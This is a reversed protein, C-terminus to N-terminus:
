ADVTPEPPAAALVHAAGLQELIMRLAAREPSALAVFPRVSGPLADLARLLPGTEGLPLADLLADLFRAPFARQGRSLRIAGAMPAWASVVSQWATSGDFLTRLRGAATGPEQECAALLRPFWAGSLAFEDWRDDLSPAPLLRPAPGTSALLAGFLPPLEDAQEFSLLGASFRAVSLTQVVWDPAGEEIAAELVPIAEQPRGQYALAAGLLSLAPRPNDLSRRLVTAHAEVSAHDSARWAIEMAAVRLDRADPWRELASSAEMSARGLDGLVFWARARAEGADAGRLGRDITTVLQVAEERAGTEVLAKVLAVRAGLALNEIPAAHGVTVARLPDGVRVLRELLGRGIATGQRAAAAVVAMARDLIAPPSGHEVLIIDAVQPDEIHGWAATRCGEAVDLPVDGLDLSMWILASIGAEAGWRELGEAAMQGFGASRTLALRGLLLSHTARGPHVRYLQEAPVVAAEAPMAWIEKIRADLWAPVQEEPPRWALDYVAREDVEIGPDARRRRIEDRALWAAVFRALAAPARDPRKMAWALRHLPEAIEYYAERGLETSVVLHDRRLNRLQGSATQHTSFTLEALESVTLPYWSSALHELYPQQGPPRRAMQEQFYPTLDEALEHFAADLDHLGGNRLFPFILAMARPNGGLLHRIAGVQAAGGPANLDRLLADDREIVALRRLMDLCATEDLPGLTRRHFTQYFPAKTSTFPEGWTCASALVSWNPRAQLFARLTGQGGKGIATLVRDLNELVVLVPRGTVRADLLGTARDLQEGLPAKRLRAVLEAPPATGEEAPLAALIRALLDVLSAVHEEEGLRAVLTNSRAAVRHAALAVMHSKGVGRPGTFTVYTGVGRSAADQLEDVLASLVPGRAVLIEELVEPAVGHPSYRSTRPRTM